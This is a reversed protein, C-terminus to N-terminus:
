VWHSINSQWSVARILSRLTAIPDREIAELIGPGDGESDTSLESAIPPPVYDPASRKTYKTATMASLVAECALNVVHPFCSPACNCIYAWYGRNSLLLWKGCEDILLISPSEDALCSGSCQRRLYITQPHMIWRSGDSRYISFVRDALSLFPLPKPATCVKYTVRLRDIVTLFAESLHEGTHRDPVNILGILESRLRLALFETSVTKTAEGEIWHATVAM